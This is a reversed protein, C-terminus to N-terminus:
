MKSEPLNLAGGIVEAILRQMIFRYIFQQNQQQSQLQALNIM